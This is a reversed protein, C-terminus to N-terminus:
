RCWPWWNKFNDSNRNPQKFVTFKRLMSQMVTWVAEIVPGQALVTEVEEEEQEMTM